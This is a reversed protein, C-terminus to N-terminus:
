KDRDAILARSALDDGLSVKSHSATIPARPEYTARRERVMTGLREALSMEPEDTLPSLKAVPVGRDTVIVEVGERVQRLYYSLSNKLEATGVAIM